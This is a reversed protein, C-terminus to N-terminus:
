ELPVNTGTGGRIISTVGGGGGWGVGYVIKDDKYWSVKNSRMFLSIMCSFLLHKFLFEPLTSLAQVTQMECTKNLMNLLTNVCFIISYIVNNIM